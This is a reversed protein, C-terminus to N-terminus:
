FPRRPAYYEDICLSVVRSLVAEADSHSMLAAQPLEHWTEKLLVILQEVHVDRARADDCIRRLLMRMQVDRDSIRIDVLCAGRLASQALGRLPEAARRRPLMDAIPAGRNRPVSGDELESANM